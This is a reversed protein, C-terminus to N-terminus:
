FRQKLIHINSPLRRYIIEREAFCDHCEIIHILMETIKENSMGQPVGADRQLVFAEMNSVVERCIPNRLIRRQQLLAEVIGINSEM